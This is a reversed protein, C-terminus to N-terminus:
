TEKVSKTFRVAVTEGPYYVNKTGSVEVDWGEDVRKALDKISDNDFSYPFSIFGDKKRKTFLTRCHDAWGISPLEGCETVGPGRKWDYSLTVKRRRMEELKTCQIIKSAFRRIDDLEDWSMNKEDVKTLISTEILKKVLPCRDGYSGLIESIESNFFDM